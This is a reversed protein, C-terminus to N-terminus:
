KKKVRKTLINTMFHVLSSIVSGVTQLPVKIERVFIRELDAIDNIAKEIKETTTNLAKSIQKLNEILEPLDKNVTDLTDNIKKVSNRFQFVVPILLIVLATLSLLFLTFAIEWVSM